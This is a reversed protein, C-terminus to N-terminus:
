HRLQENLEDTMQKVLGPRGHFQAPTNQFLVIRWWGDRRAAVLSQISNLAPDLDTQGAPARGAVARLVAADAGLRRVSRVKVTYPTTVHDACIQALTSGIEARGSMQSGDFGVVDGHETFGAAFAQADHRNWGDILAHYLARPADDDM